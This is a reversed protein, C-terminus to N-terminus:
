NNIQNNWKISALSFWKLYIMMVNDGGVEDHMVWAGSIWQKKNMQNNWEISALNFWKMYIMMVNDGGVKDCRM